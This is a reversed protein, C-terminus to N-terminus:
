ACRITGCRTRHLGEAVATRWSVSCQRWRGTTMTKTLRAHRFNRQDTADAHRSAYDVVPPPGMVGLAVSQISRRVRFLPLWRALIAYRVRSPDVVEQWGLEILDAESQANMLPQAAGGLGHHSYIDLISLYWVAVDPYEQWRSQLLLVTLPHGAAYASDGFLADGELLENLHTVSIQSNAQSSGLLLGKTVDGHEFLIAEGMRVNAARMSPAIFAIMIWFLTVKGVLVTFVNLVVFTIGTLPLFRWPSPWIWRVLCAALDVTGVAFTLLTIVLAADFMRNRVFQTPELVRHKTASIIKEGHSSGLHEALWPGVIMYGLWAVAIALVYWRWREFSFTSSSRVM